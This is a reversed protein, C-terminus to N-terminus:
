GSEDQEAECIAKCRGSVVKRTLKCTLFEIRVLTSPGGQPRAGGSPPLAEIGSARHSGHGDTHRETVDRTVAGVEIEILLSAPHSPTVAGSGGPTGGPSSPPHRHSQRGSLGGVKDRVKGDSRIDGIIM